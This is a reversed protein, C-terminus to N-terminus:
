GRLVELIDSTNVTGDALTKENLLELIEGSLQLSELKINALGQAIANQYTIPM